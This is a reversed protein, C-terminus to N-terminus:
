ALWANLQEYDYQDAMSRLRRAAEVSLSEVEEILEYLRATDGEAVAQRLKGLLAEPLEPRPARLDVPPPPLLSDDSYVYTLNLRSRLLEFLLDLQVPKTLCADVGTDMVEQRADEFAIATVAIILTTSGADTARLRRTAEYGDMVPMRMDMLVAQPSTRAFTELAEAGDEAEIVEFGVVGLVARLLSRNDRADDVVLVGVRGTGPKLGVIRRPKRKKSSAAGEVAVVPVSLRFRSGKGLESEVTLSGGMVEALRRSISLGLGSGGAKAGAETQVFAAFLLSVDEAAVGPGTDEVDALLTMTQRGAAPGGEVAEARVRLRVEGTTTFKVANGLLNLLVQRLKGEDAQLDNPVSDDIDVVFRLGKAVSRAHFVTKLDDFLDHLCFVVPKLQVQGAEIKSMDLVDNILRSLHDSNRIITRAYEVQKSAFSSDRAIVQAFGLIANLPTRMEHSMNALFRTKALNATESSEKAKELQLNVERLKTDNERLKTTLQWALQEARGRVSLLSYLLVSLLVSTTLGGFLVLWVEAYQRGASDQGTKTFQLTWPRGASSLRRQLFLRPHARGQTGPQSDYLLAEPTGRDGDFMELRIRRENAVDWAGMINQMLDRMRYPSYVWGRLAVRREAVTATPRDTRYVPVYMLTGAQVDRSTEQVLVVKASLAAVNQDRAREMAARRIPENFMDFGFARLNRGTFPELYVISSYMERDGVPHVEYAPYGEARILATHAALEARPIRQSFGLGQVGPLQQEVRNRVTFRHWDDRSVHATQEFFAAASRLIQEHALLRDLTKGRIQDCVFAFERQQAEDVSSKTYRAVLATLTLGLGLLAWVRWTGPRHGGSSALPLDGDAPDTM